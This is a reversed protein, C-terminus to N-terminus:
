KEEVRITNVFDIIAQDIISEIESINDSSGIVHGLRDNTGRFRKVLEGEKLDIKWDLNEKMKGPSIYIGEKESFLVHAFTPKGSPTIPIDVEQGLAINIALQYMNVGWYNGCVEPLCTGGMRAAIEILIPGNPSDILDVNCIADQIELAKIADQIAIKTKELLRKEEPHPCGHGIPMKRPPPTTIDSHIMTLILKNGVVVAQAGFEDGNIWEEILVTGNKSISFAENFADAIDDIRNVRIIGRSGSSDTAKIVCPGNIGEFFSVAEIISNVDRYNATPVGKQIFKQKMISKDMCAFGSQYGTGPLGINDVVLGITPICIDTATTLIGDIGLEQCLELIAKEDTIDIPHFNPAVDIGPYDGLLSAVHVELNMSLATRILPEQYVGAGLIMIKQRKLM